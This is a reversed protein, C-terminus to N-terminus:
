AGRPNRLLDRIETLLEQEKSLSPPAAMQEQQRSRMVWGLFKKLFLFLAFAVILFNVVEGLFKGYLIESGGLTVKWGVYGQEGPLVAALLPLFVDKVLSDVVKGFAAGIIVAVALDTVNGKLAFARFEQFFSSVQATADEAFRKPESAM